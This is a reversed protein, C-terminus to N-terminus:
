RKSLWLMLDPKKDPRKESKKPKEKRKEEPAEKRKEEPKERVKKEEKRKKEKEEVEEEREGELILRIVEEYDDFDKEGLLRIIKLEMPTFFEEAKTGKEQPLKRRGFKTRIHLYRVSFVDHLFAVDFPREWELSVRLFAEKPIEPALKRLEKKVTEEDGKIRIDYFPRVDLRVFRPKFDEVIFFGKEEGGIKKFKLGDWRYRLEYDGFDWRQLSGPYALIGSETSTIWRKHIHGMAYYMFGKPLDSLSIEFYDRQTELHLKEMMERIGQHLMLVADGQPRFYDSLRNREFWAASMYKTGYIEVSKGGKEFVGKVLLRGKVKETTQYRNEKREESFGILHVLGLSELLHYASIKKQTRDHNGEIAFVPIKERKPIELIDMAEKITQPAPNSRHFLDGAILIFDVKEEVARRIAEEFARRFEEARYPLRYQEYGLHADALHAFKISM